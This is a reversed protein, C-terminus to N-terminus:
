DGLERIWINRFRVPNGHFQLNLPLKDPHKEYVGPSRHTTTGKLEAHDQVLVGNHLVTMTAPKVVKGDDSFHPRHFIIDYTQWQGPPRVANVLPPYQGYLAAAQGDAYTENQYSDLIQVEYKGMIYVGSNGRGQSKGSMNEPAAWEVHIQCDGFSDKTQIDDGAAEMYGGMVKWPAEGGKKSKWKSLDKGDFLIMADSPAKGAQENTSATGPEIVPPRPRSEDHVAWKKQERSDAVAFYVAGGILVGIAALLALPENM